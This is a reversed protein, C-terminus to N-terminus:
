LLQRTLGRAAGSAAPRLHALVSSAQPRPGSCPVQKKTQLMEFYEKLGAPLGGDGVDKANANGGLSLLTAGALMASLADRRGFGDDGMGMSMATRAPRLSNTAGASPSSSRLDMNPLIGGFASTSQLCAAMLCSLLIVRM